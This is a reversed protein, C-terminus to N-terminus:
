DKLHLKSFTAEDALAEPTERLRYLVLEAVAQLQVEPPFQQDVPAHFLAHDEADPDDHWEANAKAHKGAARAVARQLQRVHHAVEELLTPDNRIMLELSESNFPSEWEKVTPQHIHEYNEYLQNIADEPSTAFRLTHFQEFIGIAGIHRGTFTIAYCKTKM